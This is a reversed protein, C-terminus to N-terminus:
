FCVFLIKHFTAMANRYNGHHFNGIFFDSKVKSKNIVHLVFLRPVRQLFIKLLNDLFLHKIHWRKFFFHQFQQATKTTATETQPLHYCRHYFPRAGAPRSFNLSFDVATRHPQKHTLRYAAIRNDFSNGRSYCLCLPKKKFM